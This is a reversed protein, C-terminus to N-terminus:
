LSPWLHQQFPVEHAKDVDMKMEEKVIPAQEKETPPQKLAEDGGELAKPSSTDDGGKNEKEEKDVNAIFTILKKVSSVFDPVSHKHSPLVLINNFGYKPPCYM